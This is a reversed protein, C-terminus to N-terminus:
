GEIVRMAELDFYREGCATCVDAVVTVPGRGGRRQVTVNRRVM